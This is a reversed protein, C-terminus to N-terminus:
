STGMRERMRRQKEELLQKLLIENNAKEADKIRRLLTREQRKRLNNKYQGVIKLCSQRDWSREEVCLSSILEQLQPDETRGILDAGLAVGGAGYKQLIIKGLSKLTPTEFSEVLETTDINSLMDPANLMMAVLTEELRSGRKGPRESVVPRDKRSSNRIKELIAAEDIDLRESLEKVYVARVVSDTLSVLPPILVEVVKVRGQLSLGFRNIASVMLFKMMDLAKDALDRFAKPGAKFIYSDPDSGQPLTMVRADVKEEVFLPLSREAAKMGAEDSDFLLIVQRAYGKLTRVHHRTIATGLTGVVNLIGHCHLALVDFYGEVVFVVGTKRCTEKALPLGYLIRGKHYISTEPSNLYKPLSEDLCRGGFGVVRNHIDVIPFMIRARFRDYYGIKKPIVLGSREVDGLAIDKSRFYRVLNDWGNPAYGLSFHSVTDQSMKRKELYAKALQGKRKDRLCQSFYEAAQQNIIFLKETQEMHRRQSRSMDKAPLVIGYKRALLSVAEPFGINHYQMLFKFVNGGQGCGFCHFIQKGESVTFSPAKDAHFPCLGLHNKGSKKLSVHESVVDVINAANRVEAITDEPIFGGM